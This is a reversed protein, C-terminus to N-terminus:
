PRSGESACTHPPCTASPCRFARCQPCPTMAKGCTCKRICRERLSPAPARTLAKAARTNYDAWRADNARLMEAHGARVASAVGEPLAWCEMVPGPTCPVPEPLPVVDALWLGVPGVYWPSDVPADPWTSISTLRGLALVASTALDESPRAQVGCYTGMLKGLGADYGDAACVAVLEGVAHAPPGSVLNVVPCAGVSVSYAMPQPVTVALLPARTSLCLTTM